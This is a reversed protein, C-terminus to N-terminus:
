VKFVPEIGTPVVFFGAQHRAKQTGVPVVNVPPRIGGVGQTPAERRRICM